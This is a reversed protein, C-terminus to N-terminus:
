SIKYDIKLIKEMYRHRRKGPKLKKKRLEKLVNLLLVPWQAGM